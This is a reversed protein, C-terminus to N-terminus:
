GIKLAAGVPIPGISARGDKFSLPVAGLLGLAQLLAQNPAQGADLKLPLEGKLRGDPDVSLPGGQGKLMLGGIGLQADAVTMSGGANRWSQLAGPWNSGRLASLRTLRADWKLSFPKGSALKAIGAEPRVVGGDLKVYVAAQDNPGPQLDLELKDITAFAPPTAGQAPPALSSVM